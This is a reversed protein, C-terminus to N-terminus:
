APAGSQAHCRKVTRFAADASNQIPASLIASRSGPARNQHSQLDSRILERLCSYMHRKRKIDTHSFGRLYLVLLKVGRAEPNQDRANCLEVKQLLNLRFRTRVKSTSQKFGAEDGFELEFSNCAERLATAVRSRERDSLAKIAEIESNFVDATSYIANFLYPM